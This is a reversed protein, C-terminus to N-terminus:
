RNVKVDYGALKGAERMATKWRRIKGRKEEDANEEHRTFAEKYIERQNRVESPDVHYFIPIVKQEREEKCSMIKVLEDLCWESDAYNKSFVIVAIKSEEIAQLLEPAIEEGKRLGEDDRFTKINCRNLAWYLHDTFSGRTDKGRFNLFM